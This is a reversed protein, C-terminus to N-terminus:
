FLNVILSMERKGERFDYVVLLNVNERDVVTELLSVHEISFHM